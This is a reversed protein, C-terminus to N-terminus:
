LCATSIRSAANPPGKFHFHHMLESLPADSGSSILDDGKAKNRTLQLPMGLTTSVVQGQCLSLSVERRSRVRLSPSTWVNIQGNVRGSPYSLGLRAWASGTCLSAAGVGHLENHEVIDAGSGLGEEVVGADAGGVRGAGQGRGRAVAGAGGVGIAGLRAADTVAGTLRTDTVAGIPRPAVADTVAGALRPCSHRNSRWRTPPCSHQNGGWRTLPM